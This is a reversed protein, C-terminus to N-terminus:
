SFGKRFIDCARDLKMADVFLDAEPRPKLFAGKIDISRHYPLPARRGMVANSEVWRPPNLTEPLAEEFAEQEKYIWVKAHPGSLSDQIREIPVALPKKRYTDVLPPTLVDLVDRNFLVGEEPSLYFQARYGSRGNFFQDFLVESLPIQAVLRFYGRSECAEQWDLGIQNNTSARSAEQALSELLEAPSPVNLLRASREALAPAVAWTAADM